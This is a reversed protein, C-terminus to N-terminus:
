LKFPWFHGKKFCRTDGCEWVVYISSPELSGYGWILHFGLDSDGWSDLIFSFCITTRIMNLKCLSPKNYKGM